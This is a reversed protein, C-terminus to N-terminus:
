NHLVTRTPRANANLRKICRDAIEGPPMDKISKGPHERKWEQLVAEIDNPTLTFTVDGCIIAIKKPTGMM